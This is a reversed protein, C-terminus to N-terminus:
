RDRMLLASVLGLIWGTPFALAVLLYGFPMDGRFLSRDLILYVLVPFGFSIGLGVLVKKNM